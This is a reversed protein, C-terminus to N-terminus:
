ALVEYMLGVLAHQRILVLGNIKSSNTAFGIKGCDMSKTPLVEFEDVRGLKLGLYLTDCFEKSLWPTARPRRREERPSSGERGKKEQYKKGKGTPRYWM